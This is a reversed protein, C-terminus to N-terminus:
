EIVTGYPFVFSKKKEPCTPQQTILIKSNLAKPQYRKPQNERAVQMMCITSM